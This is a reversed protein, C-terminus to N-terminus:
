KGFGGLSMLVRHTYDVVTQLIWPGAIVLVAVAAAIKPVFSLTMDQMQTAAQLLSVILGIVLGTALLPGVVLILVKLADQLVIIVGDPTM